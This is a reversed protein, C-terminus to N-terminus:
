RNAVGVNLVQIFELDVQKMSDIHVNLLLHCLVMFSVICHLVFM